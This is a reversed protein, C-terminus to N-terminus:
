NNGAHKKVDGASADVNHLPTDLRRNKREADHLWYKRELELTIQKSLYYNNRTDISRGNEDVRVTLIHLHHRD